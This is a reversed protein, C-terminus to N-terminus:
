KSCTNSTLNGYPLFLSGGGPQWRRIDHIEERQEDQDDADKDKWDQAEGILFEHSIRKTKRHEQGKAIWKSQGTVIIKIVIFCTTGILIKRILFLHYDGDDGNQCHDVYENRQYLPLYAKEVVQAGLTLEDSIHSQIV